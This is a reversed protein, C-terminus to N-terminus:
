FGIRLANAIGINQLYPIFGYSGGDSYYIKDTFEKAINVTSDSSYNDVVIIEDASKVNSLCSRINKEENKVAIVVSLTQNKM